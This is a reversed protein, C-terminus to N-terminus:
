EIGHIAVSGSTDRVLFEFIEVLGKDDVELGTISILVLEEVFSFEKGAQL